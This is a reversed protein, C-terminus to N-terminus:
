PLLLIAGTSDGSEAWAHAKAAEKLAFRQGIQVTVARCDLVTFLDAAAMQLAERDPLYSSLTPRTIFLSGRKSLEFPSFPEVPGTANGYTVMLGLPALCDLSEFFTDKGLSDYVVPVGQGHTLDRVTKVLPDRGRVIVHSCGNAQALAIKEESGVVGIVKAGLHRAWQCLLTGVGGAAAYVLVTQGAQVLFTQKLLYRATLGKLMAAAADEFSLSDPLKVLDEVSTIRYQCYTGEESMTYTVVRDGVQLDRVDEGIAEVVGAADCGLVSPLPRPYLGRRFYTDIMNFGIAEHRVLAERAGLTKLPHRGFELVAPSGTERM